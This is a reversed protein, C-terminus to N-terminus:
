LFAAHLSMQKPSYKVVSCLNTACQWIISRTKKDHCVTSTATLETQASIYTITLLASIDNYNFTSIRLCQFISCLSIVQVHGM